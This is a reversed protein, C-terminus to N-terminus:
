TKSFILFDLIACGVHDDHVYWTGEFNKDPTVPRPLFPFGRDSYRLVPWPATDMVGSCCTSAQTKSSFIYMTSKKILLEILNIAKNEKEKKRKKEGEKKRAMLLLIMSCGLFHLSIRRWFLLPFM